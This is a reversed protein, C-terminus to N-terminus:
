FISLALSCITSVELAPRMAKWSESLLVYWGIIDHEEGMILVLVNGISQTRAMLRFTGDSSTCRGPSPRVLDGDLYPKMEAHLETVVTRLNEESPFLLSNDFNVRRMARWNMAAASGAEPAANVLRHHPQDKIDRVFKHYRFM